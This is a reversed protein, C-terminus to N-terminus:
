NIVMSFKRICKWSGLHFYYYILRKIYFIKSCLEVPWNWFYKQGIKLVSFKKLSQICCVIFEINAGHHNLLSQFPKLDIKKCKHTFIHSYYSTTVKTTYKIMNEGLAMIIVLTGITTGLKTWRIIGM